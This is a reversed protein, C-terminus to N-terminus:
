RVPQLSDAVRFFEAETLGSASLFYEIGPLGILPQSWTGPEQWLLYRQSLPATTDYVTYLARVGRFQPHSQSGNPGTLPPPNAGVNVALRFDRTHQDDTYSLTYSIPSVSVAASMGSPVYTPLLRPDGATVTERIAAAPDASPPLVTPTPILIGKPTPTPPASGTAAPSPPATVTSRSTAVSGCGALLAVAALAAPLCTVCRHNM